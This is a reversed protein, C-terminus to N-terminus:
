LFASKETRMRQAKGVNMFFVLFDKTTEDLLTIKAFAFPRITNCLWRTGFM